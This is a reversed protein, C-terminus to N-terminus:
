EEERRQAPRAAWEEATIAFIAHDQWRGAILLYREALGEQRFGNKQLVRISAANHPLVAAQVRHLRMEGFAHDLALGVAQTTLGRGTHGEDLWYGLYANQFAARTVGSLTLRGILQDTERLVIGFVYGRDSAAAALGTQISEEQFALTYFEPPRVAEWPQLYAANIQYLALIAPADSLRLARLAVPQSELM